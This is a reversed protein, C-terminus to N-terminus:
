LLRLEMFRAGPVPNARYPPVDRFGLREYLRQAEVMSPLTDLRMRGYGRGRASEIIALALRRGIGTGRRAPRVYLRKMECADGDLPRLAVCGAAREGEWALLLAGRPEAYEWPLSLLEQEFGQFCLDVSLSAAYERLLAVVTDRDKPFRAPQLLPEGV